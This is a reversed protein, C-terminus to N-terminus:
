GFREPKEFILNSEWTWKQHNDDSKKLWKRRKDVRLRKM